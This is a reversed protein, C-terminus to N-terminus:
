PLTLGPCATSATSASRATALPVATGTAGAASTGDAARRITGLREIPPMLTCPSASMRTLNALHQVGTGPSEITPNMLRPWPTTMWVRSHGFARARGRLQADDSVLAQDYAQASVERKSDNAQYTHPLYVVQETYFRRESEPILFKDAIIYDIHRSGMTGPFGLFQAQVPAPRRGLIGPRCGATFGNLDIAVDVERERLLAAMEADNRARADIFTEFASELRRRLASGDNPGLAVGIAEFRTRDHCEFAGVILRAVAHDNFDSSLYAVRIREHAYREGRWLTEASAPFQREVWQRAASLADAAVEGMDGALGALSLYQLPACVPRGARIAQTIAATEREIGDWDCCYLRCYALNGRAWPFDADRAVVREFDRSAEEFRRLTLLTNGRQNLAEIEDPRIELARTYAAIAEDRRGLQALASGRRTWADANQPQATQFV